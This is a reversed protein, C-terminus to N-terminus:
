FTFRTKIPYHDSLDPKMIRHDLIKFHDSFLNYDIRMPPLKGNYTDGYGSGKKVFADNLSGAIKNYTYSAPTDNFDGVVIVPYPSNDIEEKIEKVQQSRIISYKKIKHILLLFQNRKEEDLALDDEDFVDYDSKNFHNSELHLNFLRVMQGNIELDSYFGFSKGKLFFSKSNKIPYKSYMVFLDLFEHINKKLYPASHVYKHKFARQFDNITNVGRTPYSQFEQFCIIDANQNNVFDIIKSRVVKDGKMINSNSLNHTNFSLVTISGEANSKQSLGPIQFHSFVLSYSLILGLLSYVFYKKLLVLWFVVFLINILAIAPFGLSLISLPWFFEPSLVMTLHTSLLLIIFIYNTWLIPRIRFKSKKEQSAM